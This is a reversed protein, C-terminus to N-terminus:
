VLTFEELMNKIQEKSNFMMVDIISLNPVFENKFQPYTIENTKLFHLEIGNQAFIEKNYLETGGIANYYQDANLIKCIHMVKDACKLSCDKKLESSTILETTIGLYQNVIKFSYILYKSFCIETNNLIDQILPFVENYYPAKTYALSITKLLKKEESNHLLETENFLKSDSVNKIFINIRHAKGGLLINNRNAWGGKIYNADDFVVYKDVANMLQWYGIYPFFYPQMIGLKM